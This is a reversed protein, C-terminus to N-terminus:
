RCISNTWRPKPAILVANMSDTPLPIAEARAALSSARPLRAVLQALMAEDPDVATV